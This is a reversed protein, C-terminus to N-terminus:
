TVPATRTAPHQVPSIANNRTALPQLIGPTPKRLSGVGRAMFFRGLALRRCYKQAAIRQRNRIPGLSVFIHAVTAQKVEGAVCLAAALSLRQASDYSWIAALEQQAEAVLVLCASGPETAFVSNCSTKEIRQTISDISGTRMSTGGSISPKLSPM